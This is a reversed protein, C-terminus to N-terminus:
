SNLATKLPIGTLSRAIVQNTSDVHCGDGYFFRFICDKPTVFQSQMVGFAIRGAWVTKELIRCFEPIMPGDHGLSISYLDTLTFVGTHRVWVDMDVHRKSNLHTLLLNPSSIFHVFRLPLAVYRELIACTMDLPNMEPFIRLITYFSHRDQRALRISIELSLSHVRRVQKEWPRMILELIENATPHAAFILDFQSRLWGCVLNFAQNYLRGIM